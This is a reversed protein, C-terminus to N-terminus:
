EHDRQRVDEDVKEAVQQVADDVRPDLEFSVLGAIGPNIRLSVRFKAKVIPRSRVITSMTIASAAGSSAGNSGLACSVDRLSSGGDRSCRRPSSSRPRSTSERIRQPARTESRTPKETTIRADTTPM